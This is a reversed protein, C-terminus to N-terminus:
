KTDKAVEWPITLIGDPTSLSATGSGIFTGPDLSGTISGEALLSGYGIIYLLWRADGELAGDPYVEAEVFLIEAITGGEVQYWIYGTGTALGGTQVTLQLSEPKTSGVLPSTFTGIWKGCLPDIEPGM